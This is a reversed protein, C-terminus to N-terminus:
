PAGISQEKDHMCDNVSELDKWHNAKNLSPGWTEVRCLLTPTVLTDFLWLKVTARPIAFTCM